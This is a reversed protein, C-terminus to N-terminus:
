SPGTAAKLPKGVDQQDGKLYWLRDGLLVWRTYVPHEYPGLRSLQPISVNVKFKAKAKVQGQDEAVEVEEITYSLFQVTGRARAFGTLTMQERAKPELLQYQAMLDGKVRAEWLEMARARLAEEPAPQVNPLQVGGHGGCGTLVGILLGVCLARAWKM